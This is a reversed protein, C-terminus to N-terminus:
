HGLVQWAPKDTIVHLSLKSGQAIQNTHCCAPVSKYNHGLKVLSRTWIRNKLLAVPCARFFQDPSLAINSLALGAKRVRSLLSM